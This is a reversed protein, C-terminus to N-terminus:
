SQDEAVQKTFNRGLTHGVAAAVRRATITIVPDKSQTVAWNILTNHLPTYVKPLAISDIVLM